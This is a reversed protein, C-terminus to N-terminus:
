ACSATPRGSASCCCGSEWGFSLGASSDAKSTASRAGLHKMVARPPTVGDAKLWQEVQLETYTYITEREWRSTDSTVRAILIAPSQEVLDKLDMQLVVSARVSPLSLLLLFLPVCIKKTM